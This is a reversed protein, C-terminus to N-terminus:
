TPARSARAVAPARVPDTIFVVLASSSRAGVTMLTATVYPMLERNRERNQVSCSRRHLADLMLAWFLLSGKQGGWLAAVVYNRRCRARRTRRSTSSRSTTRSCRTCCSRRRRAVVLGFVALAAHEGSRVVDARRRSRAARDVRRGLVRACVLALCVALRGLEPMPERARSRRAGDTKQPEYKSPCSTMIQKARLTGTREYRGEVVM